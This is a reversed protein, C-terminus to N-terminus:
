KRRFASTFAEEKRKVIATKGGAGSQKVSFKIGLSDFCVRDIKIM